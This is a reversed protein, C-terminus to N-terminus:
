DDDSTTRYKIATEIEGYMLGVLYTMFYLYIGVVFVMHFDMGKIGIFLSGTVYKVIASYAGTTIWYILPSFLGRFLRMTLWYIIAVNLAFYLFGSLGFAFFFNNNAKSDDIIYIFAHIILLLGSQFALTIYLGRLFLAGEFILWQGLMRLLANKM